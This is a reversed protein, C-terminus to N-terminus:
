WSGHVCVTGQVMLRLAAASKVAAPQKVFYSTADV